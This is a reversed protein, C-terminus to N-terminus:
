YFNNSTIIVESSKRHRYAVQNRMNCRTSVRVVLMGLCTAVVQSHPTTDSALMHAHICSPLISPCVPFCPSTPLFSPLSSLLSPPLPQPLSSCVLLRASSPHTSPRICLPNISLSVSSSYVFSHIILSRTSPCITFSHKVFPHRVSSSDVSPRVSLCVLPCSSPRVPKFIQICM